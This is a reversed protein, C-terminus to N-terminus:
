RPEETSPDALPLMAVVSFGGATTPGITLTGGWASVRERMGTIGQGRRERPSRDGGAPPPDNEVRLTLQERGYDVGVRVPAGPAHQLANSLSEQLLRYASLGVGRLSAPPRGSTTVTIPLGAARFGALLEDIEALDPQPATDPTDDRQRLVGLVRRLETLAELATARIGALETRLAAPDDPAKIPAAEAQIAIVSMHHAVVDHLERAIRAREELVAQAARADETRLEEEVVQRQAARRVRVNYGYILAAGMMIAGLFLIPDPHLIWLGLVSVLWVGVSVRRECRVGVSYLILLYTLVGGVPVPNVGDGFEAGRADRYVVAAFFIAPVAVRWAALPWWERLLLPVAAAFSAIVLLEPDTMPAGARYDASVLAANTGAFVAIATLIELLVVVDITRTRVYRTLHQLAPPTRWVPPPSPPDAVGTVLAGTFPRTVARAARVPWARRRGTSQAAEVM